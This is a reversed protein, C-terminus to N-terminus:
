FQTVPIRVASYQNRVLVTLFKFSVICYQTIELENNENIVINEM